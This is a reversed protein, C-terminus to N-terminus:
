GSIACSQFQGLIQSIIQIKETTGWYQQEAQWGKCTGATGQWGLRIETEEDRQKLEKERHLLQFLVKLSFVLILAPNVEREKKRELIM